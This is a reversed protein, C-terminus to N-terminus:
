KVPFPAVKYTTVTPKQLNISVRQWNSLTGKGLKAYVDIVGATAPVKIPTVTGNYYLPVLPKGDIKVGITYVADRPKTYFDLIRTKPDYLLNGDTPGNGASFNGGVFIKGKMEKRWTSFVNVLADFTRASASVTEAKPDARYSVGCVDASVVPDFRDLFRLEIEKEPEPFAAKSTYQLINLHMWVPKACNAPAAALASSSGLILTLFLHRQM